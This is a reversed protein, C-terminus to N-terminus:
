QKDTAKTLREVNNRTFFGDFDGYRQIYENVILTHKSPESFIQRLGETESGVLESLYEMGDKKLLEVTFEIKDDDRAREGALRFAGGRKFHRERVGLRELM